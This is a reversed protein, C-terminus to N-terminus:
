YEGKLPEIRPDIYRRGAVVMSIARILEAADSDKLLYGSAGAALMERDLGANAHMSLGVVRVDAHRSAIIRTVELGSIDPLQYDLLVVDPELSETMEIAQRGNQAEGVIKITLAGELMFRLGERVLSNDDVILVRTAM